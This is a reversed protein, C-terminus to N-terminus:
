LNEWFPPLETFSFKWDRTTPGSSPFRLKPSLYGMAARHPISALDDTPEQCFVVPKTGRACDSYLLQITTEDNLDYLSDGTSRTALYTGSLDRFGTYRPYVATAHGLTQTQEVSGALPQDDYPLLMPRSLQRRQGLFVQGLYSNCVAGGITLRFQEVGTFQQNDNGGAGNTLNASFLRDNSNVNAWQAIQIVNTADSFDDAIEATVTMNAISLSGMAVYIADVTATDTLRVYYYDNQATASATTTVWPRGDFGHIARASDGSSTHDSYAVGITTVDSNHWQAVAYDELCNEGIFVPINDSIANAYGTALTAASYAM